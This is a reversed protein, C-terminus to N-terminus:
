LYKITPTYTPTTVTTSYSSSSFYATTGITYTPTTATYSPTVETGYLSVTSYTATISGVTYTGTKTGDKPLKQATYFTNSLFSKTGMAISAIHKYTSSVSFKRAWTRTYTNDLKTIDSHVTTGSSVSQNSNATIFYIENNTDIAFDKIKSSTANVPYCKTFLISGSSDLQILSPWFNTSDASLAGVWLNNSSDIQTPLPQLSGHYFNTILKQWSISGSPDIKAVYIKSVGDGGVLYIDDSSNVKIGKPWLAGSYSISKYWVNSGSSDYKVVNLQIYTNGGSTYKSILTAYVNGSSDYDLANIQQDATASSITVDLINEWVVSGSNNIKCLYGYRRKNGVPGTIGAEGGIYLNGSSDVKADVPLLHDADTLLKQWVVTGDYKLKTVKISYTTAFNTGTGEILWVYSNNSVIKQYYPIGSYETTEIWYTSIESYRPASLAGM